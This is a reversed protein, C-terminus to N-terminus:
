RARESEIRLPPANDDPSLIVVSNEPHVLKHFGVGLYPCYRKDPYDTDDYCNAAIIRDDHEIIYKYGHANNYPSHIEEISVVKWKSSSCGSFVTPIALVGALAIVFKM